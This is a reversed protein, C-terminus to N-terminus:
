RLVEGTDANIVICSQGYLYDGILNEPHAVEYDAPSAALATFCFALLVCLLLATINKFQSRM